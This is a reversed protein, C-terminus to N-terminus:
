TCMMKNSNSHHNHSFKLTAIQWLALQEPSDTAIAGEEELLDVRQYTPEGWLTQFDLKAGEGYMDWCR